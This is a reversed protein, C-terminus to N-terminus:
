EVVPTSEGSGIAAVRELLTPWDVRRNYGVVNLRPIGSGAVITFPGLGAGRDTDLAEEAGSADAAADTSVDAGSRPGAIGALGRRGNAIGDLGSMTCVENRLRCAIGIRRYGFDDFFAILRGQLSTVFSSDGVSSINQVARQSIRQKVGRRRETWLRADFETATWDVLRLARIEGDLRGSISGFDFVETVALLDLGDLAVDASLTPAVGFPREMALSSLRVEGDFVQMKLGGEFVLRDEAYRGDPIEGSVTGRFAPWGFAESVEGLRLAEVGLAFGSRLGQGGQPPRLSFRDFRLHGGVAPFRVPARLAIEGDASRMPLSAEGFALTHLRGGRWRLDSQVPADASFRVDGALGEFGFRGRGDVVDVAQLGVDLGRLGAADLRLRADLRGRLTLDALGYGGLWGSLYRQPLASLDASGLTLDLASLSGDAALDASGEARLSDGDAWLLRPLRWRGDEGEADIRLAVPTAPLAVYASGALLEGGQLRGDVSVRQRRGDNRYDVALDGGLGAAAISADPTDLSLGAFRVPGSVRLPGADPVHVTLRADVQGEGLRGDAWSQALLAQLWAAPVRSLDIRTDDPTAALREVELRGQGSRLEVQTFGTGLAVSLRSPARGAARLPGDCRWGGAGDRALACQWDLTRFAYGLGPADLRAAQLRLRGDPAEAPWDLDVRLGDLTALGTRLRVARLTMSEAAPQPPRAPPAVARAVAAYQAPEPLPMASWMPSSLSVLIGVIWLASAAIVSALVVGAAIRATPTSFMARRQRERWEPNLIPWAMARAYPLWSSDTAPVLMAVLMPVLMAVLM